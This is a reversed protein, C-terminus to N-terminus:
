VAAEALLANGIPNGTESRVRQAEVLHDEDLGFKDKLIDALRHIM